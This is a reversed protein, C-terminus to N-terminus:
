KIYQYTIGDDAGVVTKLFLGNLFMASM